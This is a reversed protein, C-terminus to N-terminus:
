VYILDNQGNDRWFLFVGTQTRKTKKRGISLRIPSSFFPLPLLYFFFFFFSSIRKVDYRGLSTLNKKKKRKKKLLDPISICLYMYTGVYM